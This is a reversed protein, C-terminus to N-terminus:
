YYTPIGNVISDVICIVDYMCKAFMSIFLANRLLRLFRSLFTNSRTKFNM